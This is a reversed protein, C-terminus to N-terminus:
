NFYNYISRKKEKLVTKYTKTTGNEKSTSSKNVGKLLDHENASQTNNSSTTAFESMETTETTKM